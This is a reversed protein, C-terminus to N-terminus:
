NHEEAHFGVQHLGTAINFGQAEAALLEAAARSLGGDYEMIAAREAVADVEFTKETADTATVDNAATVSTVSTCALTKRPKPTVDVTVEPTASTVARRELRTLLAELSM